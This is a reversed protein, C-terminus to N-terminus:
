ILLHQAWSCLMKRFIRLSKPFIQKECENKHFSGISRLLRDVVWDKWLIKCLAMGRLRFRAWSECLKSFVKRKAFIM